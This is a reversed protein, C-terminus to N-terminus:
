MLLLGPRHAALGGYPGSVRQAIALNPSPNGAFVPALVSSCSPKESENLLSDRLGNVVPSDKYPHVETHRRVPM